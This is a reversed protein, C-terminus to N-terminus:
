QQVRRWQTESIKEWLIGDVIAQDGVGYEIKRVPTATVNEAPRLRNLLARSQEVEIQKVQKQLGRIELFRKFINLPVLQKAKAWWGKEASGVITQEFFVEAEKATREQSFFENHKDELQAYKIAAELSEDEDQRDGFINSTYMGKLLDRYFNAQDSEAPGKRSM